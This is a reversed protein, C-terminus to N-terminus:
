LQSRHNHCSLHNDHLLCASIAACAECIPEDHQLVMCTTYTSQCSSCTKHLDQSGDYECVAEYLVAKSVLMANHTATAVTVCGRHPVKPCLSNTMVEKALQCVARTVAQDACTEHGAKSCCFPTCLGPDCGVCVASINLVISHTLVPSSCHCNDPILHSRSLAAYVLQLREAEEDDIAVYIACSAICTLITSFHAPPQAWSSM